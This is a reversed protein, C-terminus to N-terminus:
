QPLREPQMKGQALLEERERKLRKLRQRLVGVRISREVAPCHKRSFWDDVTRIAFTIGPFDPSAPDPLGMAAAANAYNAEEPMFLLVSGRENEIGLVEPSQALLAEISGMSPDRVFNPLRRLHGFAKGGLETTPRTQPAVEGSPKGFYDRIVNDTEM